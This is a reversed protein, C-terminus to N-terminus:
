DQDEESESQDGLKTPGQKPTATSSYTLGDKGFGVKEKLVNRRLLREPHEVFRVVLGNKLKSSLSPDEEMEERYGSYALATAAKAAYDM